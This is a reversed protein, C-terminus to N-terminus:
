RRAGGGQAFARVDDQTVRGHPGSGGVAGLDVGLDRALKRTAPAALAKQGNIAAAAATAPAPAVVSGAVPEAKADPHAYDAAAAPALEAPTDVGDAAILVLASGVPCSPRRRLLAQARPREEARPIEMTAKDTMVEVLPEDEKIADGEKALWKVIEGEQVGEGIDPMRFEYEGPKTQVLTVHSM